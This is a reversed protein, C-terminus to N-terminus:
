RVQYKTAEWFVYLFILFLVFLVPNAQFNAFLGGITYQAGGVFLFAVISTFVTSYILALLARVVIKSQDASLVSDPM